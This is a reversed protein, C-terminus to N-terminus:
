LFIPNSRPSCGNSQGPRMSPPRQNTRSTSPGATTDPRSDHVNDFGCQMVGRQPRAVEVFHDGPIASHDSGAHRKSVLMGGPRCIVLGVMADGEEGHGAQAVVRLLDTVIAQMM